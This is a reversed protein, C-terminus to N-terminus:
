HFNYEFSKKVLKSRYITLHVFHNTHMDKNKVNRVYVLNTMSYVIDYESM